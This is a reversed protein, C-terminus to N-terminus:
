KFEIIKPSSGNTFSIHLMNCVTPAIQTITTYSDNKGKKIGNGFFLLPVHTDYTYPSGHTTGTLGMEVVGTMYNVLLHGSRKANFGNQLLHAFGETYNEKMMQEDDYVMAVEKLSMLYDTCVKKADAMEIKKSKLLETNFFLQQNSFSAIYFEGVAEKGFKQEMLTDLDKQMKTEDVHGGDINFEKLYEPIEVAGHDATLFVTYMGKGVKKDLFLLLDELDKDLRLYTDELEISSPGFSHGVYDTSSFSLCLMDTVEDMGLNESEILIKAFDKTITNGFPTSKIIGYNGVATKINALQHPFVPKTECAFKREYPNDDAISETYTKIDYLTNWDTNLHYLFLDQTKDNTKTLWDPFQKGITNDYYYSSSIWKGSVDDFWFAANAAHGAPLIAGRDKLSIGFVKAKKGTNVRLEDGITTTLMRTPAMQGASGTAGVTTYSNDNACYVTKKTTKDYWDNAIIGHTQPACGTYISAHGPGTFTPMYNFHCNNVSFGQNMLRMFGGKSYKKQFRYLYDYRMQDVVIGIVLKPKAPSQGIVTSQLSLLVVLFLIRKNNIIVMVLIQYL